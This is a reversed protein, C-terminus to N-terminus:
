IKGKRRDNEESRFVFGEMTHTKGTGTQGYALISGNYGEMVNMVVPKGVVEYVEKQQAELGFVKDFVFQHLNYHESRNVYDELEEAEIAELNYYEYATLIGKNKHPEVASVFKGKLAEREMFPRIRVAVIIPKESDIQDQKPKSKPKPKKNVYPQNHEDYAIQYESNMLSEQKMEMFNDISNEKLIFNNQIPFHKNTEKISKNINKKIFDRLDNELDDQQEIKKRGEM